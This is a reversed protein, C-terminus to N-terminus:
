RLQVRDVVRESRPRCRGGRRSMRHCFVVHRYAVGGIQLVLERLHAPGRGAEVVEVGRESGSVLEPPHVAGPTLIM